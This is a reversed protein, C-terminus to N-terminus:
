KKDKEKSYDLASIGGLLFFILAILCGGLIIELTTM